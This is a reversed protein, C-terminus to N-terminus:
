SGPAPLRAPPGEPGDTLPRFTGLLARFRDEYRDYGGRTAPYCLVYFGDRMPVVAYAHKRVNFPEGAADYEVGWRGAPPAPVPSLAVFYKAALGSAQLTITEPAATIEPRSSDEPSRGAGYLVTRGGYVQQLTQAIFDDADAYMELRGDPLRRPRYRRYWRVSLSPAGRFFDAEFPGVFLTQAFDRGDSETTVNWGMPVAATFDKFVSRYPAYKPPSCAAALAAALIVIKSLPRTKM